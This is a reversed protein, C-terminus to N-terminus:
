LVDFSLVISRVIVSTEAVAFDLAQIAAFGLYFGWESGFFVVVSNILTLAAIWYFWSGCSKIRAELDPADVADAVPETAAAEAGAIRDRVGLEPLNAATTWSDQDSRRVHTLGDVRGESVWTQFDTLPVPGYEVGDTGIMRYTAQM